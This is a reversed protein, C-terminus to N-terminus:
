ESYFLKPMGDELVVVEFPGEKEGSMGPSGMPMGPLSIGKIAPQEKLLKQIAGAPVHGEIVYEGALITHCGALAEPVGHEAKVAQLDPAEVIEVAFGHERLYAAHGSCCECGPDKILQLSAASAAAAQGLCALFLAAGLLPRNM